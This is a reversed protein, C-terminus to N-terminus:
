IQAYKAAKGRAQWENNGNDTPMDYEDAASAKKCEFSTCAPISEKQSLKQYGVTGHKTDDMTPVDWKDIIKGTECEGKSHQYSNCAPISDKSAQAYNSNGKYQWGGTGHDTPFDYPDAASGKKCEFSTCAPVSKQQALNGYSYAGHNTEPISPVDWKATM